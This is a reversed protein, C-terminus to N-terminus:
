IVRAMGNYLFAYKMNQFVVYSFTLFIMCALKESLIQTHLFTKRELLSQQIIFWSLIAFAQRDMLFRCM